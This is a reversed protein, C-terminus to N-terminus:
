GTPAEWPLAGQFAAALFDVMLRVKASLHRRSPYLALIDIDPLRWGPLLPM